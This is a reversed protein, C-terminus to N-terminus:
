LFSVILRMVDRGFYHDLRAHLVLWITESVAPCLSGILSFQSPFFCAIRWHNPAIPKHCYLCDPFVVSGPAHYWAPFPYVHQWVSKECLKRSCYVRAFRM